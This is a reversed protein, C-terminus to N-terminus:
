FEAETHPHFVPVLAVPLQEKVPARGAGYKDSLHIYVNQRTFEIRCGPFERAVWERYHAKVAAAAVSDKRAVEFIQLLKGGPRADAQIEKLVLRLRMRVKLRVDAVM